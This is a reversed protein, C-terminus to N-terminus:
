QIVLLLYIEFNKLSENCEYILPEDVQEEFEFFKNLSNGKHKSNFHKKFSSYGKCYQGCENCIFLFSQSDEHLKLHKVYDKLAFYEQNCCKWNM